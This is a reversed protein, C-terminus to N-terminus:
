KHFHQVFHQLLEELITESDKPNPLRSAPFAAVRLIFGDGDSHLHYHVPSSHRDGVGQGARFQGQAPHGIRRPLGLACKERRHKYRKAFSQAAMGVDDIARWVNNTGVRLEVWGNGEPQAKRGLDVM